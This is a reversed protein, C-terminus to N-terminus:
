RILLPVTSRTADATPSTGRGTGPGSRIPLRQAGDGEAVFRPDGAAIGPHSSATSSDPFPADFVVVTGRNIVYDDFTTRAEFPVVADVGFPITFRGSLVQRYPMWHANDQLGYELDADLQVIRSVYGSERRASASDQPTNGDPTAWLETGVFRFTFRTVDGSAVDLWLTGTIFAGQAQKPTVTVGRITVRRGATAITVSDGAAYRYFRDAGPALPHPAAREPAESGFVRISDGLTRPVFWPRGFSSTLDIGEMRSASRRGDLDVRLDNPLQGCSGDRSSRRLWPHFM